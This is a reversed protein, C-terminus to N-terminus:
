ATRRADAVCGQLEVASQSVLGAGAAMLQDRNQMGRWGPYVAIPVQADRARIRKILDLGAFPVDRGNETRGLDTIVLHPARAQVIDIAEQTSRALDIHM